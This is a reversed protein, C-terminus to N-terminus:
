RAVEEQRASEKSTNPTTATDVAVIAYVYRVGPKVTADRYSTEKIPAPTLPTLPGDPADGRLVLYGALDKEPSADWILSIQGATPVVDLRKPAAPPFVDKPTICAPESLDGELAVEGVVGVSRVRYCQEEGLPAGGHEFRPEKLLSDNLPQMEDGGRYVNFQATPAKENPKWELVVGSEAMTTRLEVPPAPLPLVPLQVRTSPAGTRGSRSVGRLAYVRNPEGTAAKAAAAAAAAAAEPSVAAAPKPPPPPPVPTLKETTLEEEFTVTDGPGPRPDGEKPPEGEIPAPKVEIRGVVNAKTFLERNPPTVGPGVTIAYIEVHDLDLRGPGNVNRSPLVFRVRARESLRRVTVQSPAEPVLHLPALPPGKQGCAAAAFCIGAAAALQRRGPIRM